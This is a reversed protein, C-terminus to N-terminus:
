PHEESIRGQDPHRACRVLVDYLRRGDRNLPVACLVILLAHLTATDYLGGMSTVRTRSGAHANLLKEKKMGEAHEGPHGVLKWHHGSLKQVFFRM